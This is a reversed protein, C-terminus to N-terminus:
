IPPDSFNSCESIPDIQRYNIKGSKGSKIPYGNAIIWKEMTNWAIPKSSISESLLAALQDREKRDLKRGLYQPPVTIEPISDAKKIYLIDLDDRYRGRVQTVVDKEEGNVVMFDIKGRLTIATGMSKNIILYDYQDPIEEHEIIYDRAKKQEDTMPKEIYNPSWIAIARPGLIRQLEKM